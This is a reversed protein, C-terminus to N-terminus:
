EEGVYKTSLRKVLFWVGLDAPNFDSVNPDYGSSVSIGLEEALKDMEDASVAIEKATFDSGWQELIAEVDQGMTVELVIQYKRKGM